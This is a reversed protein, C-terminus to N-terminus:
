RLYTALREESPIVLRFTTDQNEIDPRIMDLLEYFKEQSMRFYKIFKKSDKLLDQFLHSHEGFILRKSNIEHVWMKKKKIEAGKRRGKDGYCPITNRKVVTEPFADWAASAIPRSMGLRPPGEWDLLVSSIDTTFLLSSYAQGVHASLAHLYAIHRFRIIRACLIAARLTVLAYRVTEASAAKNRAPFGGLSRRAKSRLLTQLLSSSGSLASEFFSIRLASRSM